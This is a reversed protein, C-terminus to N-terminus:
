YRHAENEQATIFTAVSGELSDVAGVFAETAQRAQPSFLHPSAAIKEEVRCAVRQELLLLNSLPLSRSLPPQLVFLPLPIPLYRNAAKRTGTKPNESKMHVM